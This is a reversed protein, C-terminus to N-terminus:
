GAAQGAIGSAAGGVGTVSPGRGATQTILNGYVLVAETGALGVAIPPGILVREAPVPFPAQALENLVALRRGEALRPNTPIREIIIPFGNCPLMTAIQALRDRGRLSLQEGGPLFDYQYLVMRAADANAVNTQYHLAISHGLPPAQFY